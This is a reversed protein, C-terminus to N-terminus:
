MAAVERQTTAIAWATFIRMEEQTWSRFMGTFDTRERHHQKCCPVTTKDDAIQGKARPGMHDAEVRGTCQTWGAATRTALEHLATGFDPWFKLWTRVICALKRVKRMHELDRPRRRYKKTKSRARLRTKRKLSASRKLPKSRKLAARKM